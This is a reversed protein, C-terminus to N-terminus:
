LYVSHTERGAMHKHQKMHHKEIVKTADNVFVITGEPLPETHLFRRLADM